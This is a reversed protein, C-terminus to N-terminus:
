ALLDDERLACVADREPQGDAVVQAEGLEVPDEGNAAGLHYDHRRGEGQLGRAIVPLGEHARPRDLVLGEHDCGVLNARMGGAVARAPARHDDVGPTQHQRLGRVALAVDHRLKIELALMLDARAQRREGVSPGGGVAPGVRLDGSILARRGAIPRPLAFESLRRTIRSAATRTNARWPKWAHRTESM